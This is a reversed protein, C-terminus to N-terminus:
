PAIILHEAAEFSSDVATGNGIEGREDGRTPLTEIGLRESVDFV